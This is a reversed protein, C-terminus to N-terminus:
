SEGGQPKGYSALNRYRQWREQADTEARRMLQEAREPRSHTLMKYRGENYAYDRFSTKPARSDLSM